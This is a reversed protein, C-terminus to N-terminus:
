KVETPKKTGKKGAAPGTGDTYSAKGAEVMKAAFVPHEDTVTGAEHYKGGAWTVSVKDFPRVKDSGEELPKTTNKTIEQM